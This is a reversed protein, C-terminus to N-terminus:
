TTQSGTHLHLVFVSSFCRMSGHLHLKLQALVAECPARVQACLARRQTSRQQTQHDSMELMPEATCRKSESSPPVAPTGRGAAHSRPDLTVLLPLFPRSLMILLVYLM